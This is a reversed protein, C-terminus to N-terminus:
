QFIKALERLVASPPNIKGSVYLARIGEWVGIDSWESELPILFMDGFRAASEMVAHDISIRPMEAMYFEDADEARGNRLLNLYIDVSSLLDPSYKALMRRFSAAHFVYMGSNWLYDGAEILPQPFDPKQVFETAVMAPSGDVARGKRIYGFGKEPRSPPIGFLLLASHQAAFLVGDVINKRFAPLNGIWHDSPTLIGVADPDVEALRAAFIAVAPGTDKNKGTPELTINQPLIWPLNEKVASEFARNTAVHMRDTAVLGAFRDATVAIMPGQGTLDCFQKPREPTSIPALRGGMGGALLCCHVRPLSALMSASAGFFQSVLGTM